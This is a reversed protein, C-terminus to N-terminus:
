LQYSEELHSTLEDRLGRDSFVCCECWAFMWTGSSIGQFLGCTVWDFDKDTPNNMIGNWNQEVRHLM